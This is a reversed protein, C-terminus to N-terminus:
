LFLQLGRTWFSWLILFCWIQGLKKMNKLTTQLSTMEKDLHNIDRQKRVSEDNLAKRRLDLQLLDREILKGELKLQTEETELKKIQLDKQLM